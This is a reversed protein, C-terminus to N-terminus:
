PKGSLMVTPCSLMPVYVRDLSKVGHTIPGQGQNRYVHYTLGRNMHTGPKLNTVWVTRSFLAVINKMLPLNYFRDLSTVGQGQNRYVHYLLGSDMHTGLKMNVAKM